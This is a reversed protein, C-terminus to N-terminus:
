RPPLITVEGVKLPHQQRRLTQLSLMGLLDLMPSYFDKVEQYSMRDVLTDITKAIENRVLAKVHEDEIMILAAAKCPLIVSDVTTSSLGGEHIMATVAKIYNSTFESVLLRYDEIYRM